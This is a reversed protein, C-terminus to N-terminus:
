RKAVGETEAAAIERAARAKLYDHLQGIQEGSWGGFRGPAVASMLGVKRNGAAVGTHLLREFDARDYSAAIMLDPTKLVAQSGELAFGHCEVCARALDRGAAYQPGLNPLQQNKHAQITAAESKFQGIVIGLRAIPGMKSRPQDPGAAPKSRLYAILDAMEADKLDAFAASPMIWLPRGDSGVGHRIARDLDADSQRAVARTLNPAYLTALNPIDDFMRGQLGPGHCDNCGMATAIREGRAVAGADSVKLERVQPKPQPWRYMAESAVFGGGVALAAVGVLGALGYGAWKLVRKM